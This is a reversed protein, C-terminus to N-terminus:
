TLASDSPKKGKEIDMVKIIPGQMRESINDTWCDPSVYMKYEMQVEHMRM